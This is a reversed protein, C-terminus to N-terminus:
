ETLDARLAEPVVGEHRHAIKGDKFILLAHIANLTRFGYSKRMAVRRRGVVDDGQGSVPQRGLGQNGM